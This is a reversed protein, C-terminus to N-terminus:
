TVRLPQGDLTRSQRVQTFWIKWANGDRKLLHMGEIRSNPLDDPGEVSTTVQVFRVHIGDGSAREVQCTELEYHLKYRTIVRQVVDPTNLYAPSKPHITTMVAALDAREMAALNARVCDTAAQHDAPSIRGCGTLLALAIVLVLPFTRLTM